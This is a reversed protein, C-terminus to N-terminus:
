LRARFDVFSLSQTRAHSFHACRTDVILTDASAHCYHTVRTHVEYGSMLRAPDLSGNPAPGVRLGPAAYCQVRISSDHSHAHSNRPRTTGVVHFCFCIDMCLPHCDLAHRSQVLRKRECPLAHTGSVFRGRELVARVISVLDLHVRASSRRFGCARPAILVYVPMMPARHNPLRM